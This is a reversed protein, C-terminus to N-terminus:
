HLRRHGCASLDQDHLLMPHSTTTSSERCSSHIRARQNNRLPQRNGHPHNVVQQDKRTVSSVTTNRGHAFSNTIVKRCPSSISEGRTSTRTVLLCAGISITNSRSAIGERERESARHKGPTLSFLAPRVLHIRNKPKVHIINTFSISVCHLFFFTHTLSLTIHTSHTPNLFFSFLPTNM